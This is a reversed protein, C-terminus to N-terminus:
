MDGDGHSTPPLSPPLSPPLVVDRSPLIACQCATRVRLRGRGERGGEREGARGRERGGDMGGGLGRRLRGALPLGHGPLPQSSCLCSRCHFGGKLYTRGAEWGIM